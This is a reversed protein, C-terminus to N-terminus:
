RHSQTGWHRPRNSFTLEIHSDQHEANVAPDGDAGKVASGSRQLGTHTATGRQGRARGTATLEACCLKRGPAWCLVQSLLSSSNSCLTEGILVRRMFNVCCDQSSEKSPRPSTDPCRSKLPLSGRVNGLLLHESHRFHECPCRAQRQFMGRGRPNQHVGPLPLVRPM